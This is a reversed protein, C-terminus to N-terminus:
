VNKLFSLDMLYRRPQAADVHVVLFSSELQPTPDAWLPESRFVHTDATIPNQWHAVIRFPHQGGRSLAPDQEISQIKARVPTGTTRLRALRQAQAGRWGLVSGVALLLAGPGALLSLKTMVPMAEDIEAEQPRGLSYRVQVSDGERYRSPSSARASRFELQQGSPTHFEVVPSFALPHAPDERWPLVDIVTGSTALTQRDLQRAQSWTVAATALLGV